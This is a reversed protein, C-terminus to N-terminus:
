VFEWKYGGAKSRKGRACASINAQSIGTHREAEKGSSFTNIIVGIDTIQVVPKNHNHLGDEWAQRQNELNTGWYLNVVNNNQKNNDKHCVCEKGNPNPLFAEAVLRHVKATKKNGYDDYLGVTSYGKKDIHHKLVHPEYDSIIKKDGDFLYRPSYSVVTGNEYIRYKQGYGNIYKWRM